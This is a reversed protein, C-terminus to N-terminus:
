LYFNLKTFELKLYIPMWMSLKIHYKLIVYRMHFELKSFELEKFNKKKNFHFKLKSLNFKM